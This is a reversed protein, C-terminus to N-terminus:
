EDGPEDEPSAGRFDVAGDFSLSANEPGAFFVQKSGVALPSGGTSGTLQGHFQGAQLMAITDRYTMQGEDGSGSCGAVAVAALAFGLIWWPKEKRTM